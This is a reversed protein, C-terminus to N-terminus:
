SARSKAKAVREETAERTVLLKENVSTHDSDSSANPKEIETIEVEFSNLRGSFRADEELANNVVVAAEKRIEKGREVLVDRNHELAYRLKSIDVPKDISYCVGFFHKSRDIESVSVLGYVAHQRVIFDIDQTSLHGPLQIQTGIDIPIKYIKDNDSVRYQFDQIQQSCNAIYLKAM